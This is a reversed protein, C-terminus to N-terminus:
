SLERLEKEIRAREADSIPTVVDAAEGAEAHRTWSRLVHRTVIAGILLVFFPVIWAALHFGSTPPASLIVLGYRETFVDIISEVNEGNKIREWIEERIPEASHCREMKCTTITSGCGGCQCMLADGAARYEPGSGHEQSLSLSAFSLLFGLALGAGLFRLSTM